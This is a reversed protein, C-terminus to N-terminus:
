EGTNRLYYEFWDTTKVLTYNAMAEEFRPDGQLVTIWGSPESMQVPVSRASVILDPQQNIIDDVNDSRNRHIIAQLTACLDPEKSCDTRGLKEVAGPYLWNAPYRSAWDIGLRLAVPAGPDLLVSGTMMSEIAGFEQSRYFVEDTIQSHYRGRDYLGFLLVVGALSTLVHGLTPKRCTALWWAGAMLAYILFPVLQYNFGTSQVVFGILGAVAAVAFTTDAGDRNHRRVLPLMVVLGLIIPLASGVLADWMSTKYAGYVHSAMPVIESLYEPHWAMVLMIYVVGIALMLLYRADFVPAISRRRWIDRILFAVPFALFFPKICIGIAAFASSALSPGQVPRVLYWTLWPSLFLVLLHERQAINYLAGLVYILAMFAFFALRRLPGLAVARRLIAGTWLLSAGYLLVLFLYQGNTDSIHVADAILIAPITLYFNLPPNVEVLDVYLRAGDLMKRTAVLYWATDHNIPWSWFTWMFLVMAGMVILVMPWTPLFPTGRHSFVWFRLALFTALPVILAVLAMALYFGGDTFTSILWVIFSSAALGTLSVFVFRPLHQKHNPETAFTFRSHGLYSILVSACFGGFNSWLDPAAFLAHVISAVLVHTLTALGGVGAFRLLQAIM